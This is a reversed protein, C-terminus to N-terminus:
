RRTTIPPHRGVRGRAGPEGLQRGVDGRLSSGEGLSDRGRLRYGNVLRAEGTPISDGFEEGLRYGNVLASEANPISGGFEERM